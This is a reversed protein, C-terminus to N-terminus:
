SKKKRLVEPGGFTRAPNMKIDEGTTRAIKRAATLAQGKKKYPSGQMGGFRARPDGKVWRDVIWKDKGINDVVLHSVGPGPGTGTAERLDEQFQEFTKM